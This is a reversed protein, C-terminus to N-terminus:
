KKSTTEGYAKPLGLKWRERKEADEESPRSEQNTGNHM